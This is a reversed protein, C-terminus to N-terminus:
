KILTKTVDSICVVWRWSEKDKDQTQFILMSRKRINVYANFTGSWAFAHVRPHGACRRSKPQLQSSACVGGRWQWGLCLTKGKKLFRVWMHYSTWLIKQTLQFVAPYSTFYVVKNSKAGDVCSKCWLWLAYILETQGTLRQHGYDLHQCQIVLWHNLNVPTLHRWVKPTAWNVSKWCVRAICFHHNRYIKKM